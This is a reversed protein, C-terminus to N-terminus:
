WSLTRNKGNESAVGCELTRRRWALLGFAGLGLLVYTAPEPVAVSINDFYLANSGPAVYATNNTGQSGYGSAIGNAPATANSFLTWTAALNAITGTFAVNSAIAFVSSNQLGTASDEQFFSAKFTQNATGLGAVNITLHFRLGLQFAYNGTVPANAGATYGINDFTAYRPDNTNVLRTFDISFLTGGVTNRLAFGFSDHSSNPAQSQTVVYDLNITVTSATGLSFGHGLTVNNRGPTATGPYYVGGLTGVRDGNSLSVSGVQGVGDSQGVRATGGASTYTAGTFVDNTSWGNQDSLHNTYDYGSNFNESYFVQAEATSMLSLAALSFLGIILGASRRYLSFLKM